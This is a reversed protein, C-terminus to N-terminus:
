LCGNELHNMYLMLTSNANDYVMYCLTRLHSFVGCTVSNYVAHVASTNLTINFKNEYMCIYMFYVESCQMMM